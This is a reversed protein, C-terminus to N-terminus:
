ERCAAAHDVGAVVLAGAVQADDVRGLRAALVALRRDAPVLCTRLAGPTWPVAPRRGPFGPCGPCARRPRRRRRGPREPHPRRRRSRPAVTRSCRPREPDPICRPHHRWRWPPTRRRAPRDPSPPGRRRSSTGPRPRRHGIARDTIREIGPGSSSPAVAVLGVSRTRSQLPQIM